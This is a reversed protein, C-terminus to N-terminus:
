TSCIKCCNLFSPLKYYHCKFHSKSFALLWARIILLLGAVIWRTSISFYRLDQTHIFLINVILECLGHPVEIGAAGEAVWHRIQTQVWRSKQDTPDALPFWQQLPCQPQEMCLGHCMSCPLPAPLGLSQVPPGKNRQSQPCHPVGLSCGGCSSTPSNLIFSSSTVTSIYLLIQNSLLPFLQPLSHHHNLCSAIAM